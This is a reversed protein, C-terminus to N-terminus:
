SQHVALLPTRAARLAPFFGGILGVFLALIVANKVATPTIAFNFVVQTFGASLTSASVGNFFVYAAVAGIVGGLAALALSETIAGVFASLGSFGITRLTALERTRADVSSYMTNWAGALAGIAMVVGLFWGIYVMTGVAGSQGAYFDKEDMVDLQLRPEDEVYAKLDEIADPSTLRARVSQYSTGRNYLNQIVAADGWIESEFVSGEMKFVGVVTWENTGLRITSDLEFGSFERQVAAGVIIENTGPEFMRGQDIAIAPRTAFADPGVGRFPLNVETQTSRKIGDVIVYLEASTIPNGDTDRAIGPGEEIVVLQDRLITSNLEAASGARLLIAIDKSGTGAMTKQFGQAMALFALLVVVVLAVSLVAAASMWFRQPLTRLTLGTVALIQKM